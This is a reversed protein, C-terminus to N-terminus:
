KGRGGTITRGLSFVRILLGPAKAAEPPGPISSFTGDCPSRKAKKAQGSLGDYPVALPSKKPGDNKALRFPRGRVGHQPERAAGEGDHSLCPHGPRPVLLRMSRYIGEVELVEGDGRGYHKMAQVTVSFRLLTEGQM